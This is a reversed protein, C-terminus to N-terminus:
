KGQFKSPRKQLFASVGERFDETKGAREQTARELDLQEEYTNLPSQWYLSRTMSISAPGEALQNALKLAEDLLENDGVVRNILGWEVAKEAPLREALLSLEKARALGILRPLLWTSGGDPVLGIRTFAQLFYASRSAVVLDGMLAISMGVGAAAGNVATVFPISLDRLKRLFPHYTNELAHGVGPDEGTGREALNAGSCFGRGEGTLVMARFGNKPDEVFNLAAYAGKVLKVGAANMAEPHNLTLVAVKGHATVYARDFDTRM